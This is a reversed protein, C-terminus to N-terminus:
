FNPLPISMLKSMKVKTVPQVKHVELVQHVPQAQLVQNVLQVKDALVKKVQDALNVMKVQSVKEAPHVQLVEHVM